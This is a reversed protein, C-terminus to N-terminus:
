TLGLTSFNTLREKLGFGLAAYAMPKKSSGFTKEMAVCTKLFDPDDTLIIFDNISTLGCSEVQMMLKKTFEFVM